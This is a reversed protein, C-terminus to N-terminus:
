LSEGAIVDWPTVIGLMPESSSGNNTIIAVQFRQGANTATEIRNLLKEVPYTRSLFMNVTGERGGLDIYGELDKFRLADGLEVIGEDALYDFISGESFIGIVRDKEDIVPICSYRKARMTAMAGKVSDQLKASFVEGAKVCIDLCTERDLVKETLFDLAEILKDSPEVPYEGRIKPQHQLLNRTEQCCVIEAQYRSFKQEKCLFNRISDENSLGYTSRVASEFVKYKDIFKEANSM